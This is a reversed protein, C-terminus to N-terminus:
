EDYVALVQEATRRGLDVWSGPATVRAQPGLRLLLRSLWRESHVLVSAKVQHSQPEVVVLPYKELLWAASGDVELQVEHVEDSSAFWETRPALVTDHSAETVMFGEIRDVRFTKEGRSEPDFARLYWHEHEGFVEVANVRRRTSTGKEVSWYDFEVIRRDTCATVLSPLIDPPALDIELGTISDLGVARAIKELALALPGRREAGTLQQAAKVSVILSLAEPVTLRLPREFYKPMGFHVQDDDVWVDILDLPDQSVGCMSALTLDAVLEKISVGFHEAMDRTPVSGREMLWPLMVLLRRLRENVPRPGRRTM